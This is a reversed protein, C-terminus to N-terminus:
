SRQGRAGSISCPRCGRSSGRRYPWPSCCSLCCLVPTLPPARLTLRPGTTCTCCPAQLTDTPRLTLRPGAHGPTSHTSVKNDPTSDLMAQLVRMAAHVCEPDTFLFKTMQRVCEKCGEREGLSQSCLPRTALLAMVRMGLLGVERNGFLSHMADILKWCALSDGLARIAGEGHESELVRLLALLALTVIEKNTKEVILVHVLVASVSMRDETSDNDLGTLSRLVHTRRLRPTFANVARLASALRAHRQSPPAAPPADPRPAPLPSAPPAAPAPESSPPTSVAPTRATRQRTAPPPQDVGEEETADVVMAAADGLSPAAESSPELSRKGLMSTSTNQSNSSSNSDSSTTPQLQASTTTSPGSLVAGSDSDIPVNGAPDARTSFCSPRTLPKCVKQAIM